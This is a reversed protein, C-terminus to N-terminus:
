PQLPRSTRAPAGRGRLPGSRAPGYLGGNLTLTLAQLIGTWFGLLQYRHPCPSSVGCPMASIRHVATHQDAKASRRTIGSIAATRAKAEGDHSYMREGISPKRVYRRNPREEPDEQNAVNETQTVHLMGNKEGYMRDHRWALVIPM